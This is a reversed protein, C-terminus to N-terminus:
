DALLQSFDDIIYNTFVKISKYEAPNTNPIRASYIKIKLYNGSGAILTLAEQSNEFNYINREETSNKNAEATTFSFTKTLNGNNYTMKKNNFDLQWTMFEDNHQFDGYTLPMNILYSETTKLTLKQQAQVNLFNLTIFLFFFYIKM